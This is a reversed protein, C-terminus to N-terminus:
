SLYPSDQIGWSILVEFGAKLPSANRVPSAVKPSLMVTDPATLLVPMRSIQQTAVAAHVQFRKKLAVDGWSAICATPGISTTPPMPPNMTAITVIKLFSHAPTVAGTYANSSPRTSPPIEAM